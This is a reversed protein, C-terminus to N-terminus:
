KPVLGLGEVMIQATVSSGRNNVGFVWLLRSFDWIEEDEPADGGPDTVQKGNRWEKVPHRKLEKLPVVVEAWNETVKVNQAYFHNSKDDKRPTETALWIGFTTGSDGRVFFRIASYKKPNVTGVPFRKTFATFGDADRFDGTFEVARPHAPDKSSVAKLKSGVRDVKLTKEDVRHLPDLVKVKGADQAHTAEPALASWLMVGWGLLVRTKM